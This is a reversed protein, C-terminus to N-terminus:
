GKVAAIESAGEFGSLDDSSTRAVADRDIRPQAFPVKSDEVAQGFGLHAFAIGFLELSIAAIGVVLNRLSFARSRSHGLVDFAELFESSFVGTFLDHNNAM